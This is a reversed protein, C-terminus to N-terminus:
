VPVPAMPPANVVPVSNERPPYNIDTRFLIVIKEAAANAAPRAKVTGTEAAGDSFVFKPTESSVSLPM